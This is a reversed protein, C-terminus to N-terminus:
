AGVVSRVVRIGVLYLFGFVAADEYFCRVKELFAPAYPAVSMIGALVGDGGCLLKKAMGAVRLMGM